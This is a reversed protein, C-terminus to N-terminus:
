PQRPVMCLVCATCHPTFILSQVAVPHRLVWYVTGQVPPVCHSQCHKWPQVGAAHDVSVGLNSNTTRHPNPVLATHAIAPLLIILTCSGGGWGVAAGSVNREAISGARRVVRVTAPLQLILICVALM